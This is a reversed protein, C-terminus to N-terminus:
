DIREKRGKIVVTGSILDHLSRGSRNLASIFFGLGLTILTLFYGVTQRFIINKVRAPSGDISVIHLGAFIKGLSQGAVAPLLLLDAVAIVISIMWGAKNLDGCILATGDEGYFRGLFLFVVPALIILVYDALAAGCRLVFPAHVTEPSFGLVIERRDPRVAAKRASTTEM